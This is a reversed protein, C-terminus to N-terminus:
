RAESELYPALNDGDASRVVRRCSPPMTLAPSGGLGGAWGPRAVRLWVFPGRFAHFAGRAAVNVARAGIV